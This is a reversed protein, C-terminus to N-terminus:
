ILKVKPKLTVGDGYWYATAAYDVEGAVRSLMELDFRFNRRFPIGDLNHTRFFMNHGYSGEEDARPVGGFPTHFPVM